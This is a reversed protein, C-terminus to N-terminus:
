GAAVLGGVFVNFVSYTLESPQVFIGGNPTGNSTSEAGYEGYSGLVNYDDETVGNVKFIGDAARLGDFRAELVGGGSTFVSREDNDFVTGANVYSGGNFSGFVPPTLIDEYDQATLATYSYKSGIVTDSLAQATGKVEGLHLGNHGTGVELKLFVAQGPELDDGQAGPFGAGTGLIEKAKATVQIYGDSYTVDPSGYTATADAALSGGQTCANGNGGNFQNGDTSANPDAILEGVAVWVQYGGATDEKLGTQTVYCTDSTVSGAPESTGNPSTSQPLYSTKSGEYQAIQDGIGGDNGTSEITSPLDVVNYVANFANDADDSYWGSEGNSTDTIIGGSFTTRFMQTSQTSAGATLSAAGGGIILAAAVVAVLKKNIKV